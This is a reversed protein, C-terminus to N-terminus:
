GEHLKKVVQFWKAGITQPSFRERIRDQCARVRELCESQRAKAWEVGEPIDGVWMLDSFEEYAPLPEAVVFKGARVAEIMRNASKAIGRGTPIIVMSCKRYQRDMEAHSWEVYSPLRDTSTTLPAVPDKLLPLVRVLDKVNVSHGYWMLGEGWSPKWEPHEYPDPIVEAIRGAKQHIVFRMVESNCTVVNAGKAHKEYEPGRKGCDFNDDCIDYIKKPYLDLIGKDVESKSYLLIDADKCIEVGMRHLVMTPIVVRYRSSAIHLARGLVSLKM